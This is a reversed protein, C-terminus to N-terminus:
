DMTSHQGHALKLIHNVWKDNEMPDEKAYFMEIYSKYAPNDWYRGALGSLIDSKMAEDLPPKLYNSLLYRTKVIESELHQIDKILCDILQCYDYVDPKHM